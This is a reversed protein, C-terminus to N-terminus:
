LAAVPRVTFTYGKSYNGTGGSGFGVCWANAPNYELSTWFYGDLPDGGHAELLANISDKLYVLLHAEDRSFLRKGANAAMKMAEPWTHERGDDMNKADLVVHLQPIVVGNLEDDWYPTAPLFEDIIIKPDQKLEALRRDRAAKTPFKEMTIWSCDGLKSRLECKKIIPQNTEGSRLLTLGANILKAYNSQM